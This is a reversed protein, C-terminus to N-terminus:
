HGGSAKHRHLLWCGKRIELGLHWHGSAGPVRHEMYCFWLDNENVM